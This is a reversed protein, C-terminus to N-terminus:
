HSRARESARHHRRARDPPRAGGGRRSQGTRCVRHRPRSRKQASARKLLLESGAAVYYLRERSQVSGLTLHPNVADAGNAGRPLQGTLTVLGEAEFSFRAARWEDREFRALTCEIVVVRAGAQVHEVLAQLHAGPMGSARVLPDRQLNSDHTCPDGSVLLRLPSGNGRGASSRLRASRAVESLEDEVVLWPRTGEGHGYGTLEAARGWLHRLAVESDSAWVTRVPPIYALASLAHLYISTTLFGGFAEVVEIGRWGTREGRQWAGVCRACYYEELAKTASRALAQRVEAPQGAVCADCTRSGCWYCEFMCRAADVTQCDACVWGARAALLADVPFPLALALERNAMGM